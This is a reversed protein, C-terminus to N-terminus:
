RGFRVSSIPRTVEFRECRAYHCKYSTDGRHENGASEPGRRRIRGVGIRCSWGETGSPGRTDNAGRHRPIILRIKKRKRGKQPRRSPHRFKEHLRSSTAHSARPEHKAARLFLSLSLFPPPLTLVLHIAPSVPAPSCRARDGHTYVSYLIEARKRGERRKKKEKEKLITMASVGHM